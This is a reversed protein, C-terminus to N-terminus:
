DILFNGFAPIPSREMLHHEEIDTFVLDNKRHGLNILCKNNM